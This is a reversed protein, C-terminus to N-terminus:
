SVELLLQIWMTQAGVVHGSSNRTVGSLDDLYNRKSFFWPSKDLTNVADLIEQQSLNNIIEGDYDWIELLSLEACRKDLTSVLDCYIDRPLHELYDSNDDKKVPAPAKTSTSLTSNTEPIDFYDDWIDYDDYDDDDIDASRTTTPLPTTTTTTLDQKKRARPNKGHYFLEEIPLRFDISTTFIFVCKFLFLCEAPAFSQM